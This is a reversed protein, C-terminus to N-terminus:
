YATAGGKAKACAILHRPWSLILDSCMPSSMHAWYGWIADHLAEKAAKSASLDWCCKANTSRKIVFWLHEIANFHPSHAPWFWLHQHDSKKPKKKLCRLGWSKLAAIVEETTHSRAGDQILFLLWQFM